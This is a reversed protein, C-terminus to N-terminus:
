KLLDEWIVAPKYGIEKARKMVMDECDKWGSGRGQWYAAKIKYHNTGLGILFGIVASAIGLAIM